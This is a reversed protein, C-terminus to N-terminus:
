RLKEVIVEVGSAHALEVLEANPYDARVWALQSRSGGLLLIRSSGALVARESEEVAVPNWMPLLAKLEGQELDANRQEENPGDPAKPPAAHLPKTTFDKLRVLVTGNRDLLHFTVKQGNVDVNPDFTWTAYGYYLDRLSHVIQVEGVSYPLGLRADMGKAKLLGIATHLSGDMLAPHLWFQDADAKLHEPLALVALSESDNAFIRDVIQFSRGLNLGASSLFPYLEDRTMVQEQCRERIAAIDLREPVGNDVAYGLRGRCHTIAGGSGVTRVAFEVDNGGPALAIETEKAEGGVVLPREWTLNRIVRVPRGAAMEGAVRAMEMYAVGPLTKQTGIVHDVLFFEDGSFRAAFKQETFTSVNRHILPHLRAEAVATGRANTEIDKEALPFWYRERAFPYTPASVRRPVGPEHLLRWDIQAGLTWLEGLKALECADILAQVLSADTSASNLKKGASHRYADAPTGGDLVQQLKRKLDDMDSVALALREPMEDRGVQLTYALDMLAVDNTALYARLSEVYATLRDGNKASVVILQPQAAHAPRQREPAISEELVIHANAGGFGFSSIGARRPLPSGDADVPAPWPTLKDAIFLPTGKLNIYPNLEQLHLNAPIQQHKIALLTKLLGAIGAATELHGVNTKVSSLGIHPTAAPVKGHRRYLESFAKTLAQIEIPDGLPTGTGHCEIFGVTAPDVQGKEYAEILLETQAAPNPATMATVRGGHNEATAKVIAYIHDGDAEAAALSKLFIAGCGEGRVYGNASKDFTKCKGDPSLMGASSFSIYAAPTLMVQVGGVIAMDSSGTHISELARHLAVLSSSCATDLPASPGRLGLLFSVRNALVSHSNGSASYGDLVAGNTNMVDIYDNTAVGVFVGTRTGALESVKHGSDEVAKWVQELFIRQQPDMMQAERPSIGFFLPDFKDIERMFAGKNASTKNAEKLPDGYYDEWRWRDPPILTVLDRSGKLNEWFEQLDESQPMVGSMGVIAVPREIFRLEPANTVAGSAAAPERLAVAPSWAKKNGFTATAALPQPDAPASEPAPASAPGRYVRLLDDKREEVLNKAIEQISPHDFFLVPTIDLQFHDNIANAYTMLGISDFGLDLLIKDAAIDSAELKLLRMVIQSLENEMWQGLVENAQEAVPAAASSIPPTAPAKRRLGWAIELKEQVGEVVVFQSRPSALGRMFADLGVASSLPKMGLTKKMALETQEDPRMGGDAWLSWNISLSKGARAGSARLREREAAFSDMFANAFSYDAQGPNGTVAALSSFLVFFDLTEDKTAEDLLLTGQIKPAFVEAMEQVTKNRIFSDRVLGASHIVGTLDGFQAKTRRLLEDVDERKSVDAAVYLVEAGLKRLDDLRAKQAESLASRGTLVLRAKCTKALFDAFVLGLGGAGGTILYVGGDRLRAVGDAGPLDFVKLKRVSRQGSEYRVAVADQTRARLEALLAEVTEGPADSEQRVHLAKCILKPHETHLTNVFGSIAESLPLAGGPTAHLYLLQARSELKAKILAQCLFLFSFVAQEGTWAFCIDEVTALSELLRTFDGSNQADIEYTRDDIKEFKSGPRVLVVEAATRNQYADRLTEDAGFLVLSRPDHRAADDAAIAAKEWDYAYYLRSFGDADADAKKHVEMLPVGTSERIRVLVKGTEDVILVNSRRVRSDRKGEAETTYSFCKATLPGLIEVEGISYPVLMEGAGDTLRAAMGAQLSGDVLSPHLVLEQLDGRRFEPLVLAALAEKENSHVEALVQFSPGLNLGTSQFLPYADKGNVDKTCRARIAELDVYEPQGDQRDTYLLKGQSHLTKKGELESFVEFQVAEGAPKLEIFVEQPASDRVAIPSVWVINQIRRVPRGAALEGAKRALELYAVGPLTPIDSVLHDYIFFDRDHFTKKFLQREFTSENSDVMPHIGAAAAVAHRAASPQGCWHRKGAFPYTPLPIRRAAGDPPFGQWDTLLGEAWLRAIKRPDRAQSLLRVFEQKESRSLLRTVSEALKVHGVAVDDDKKGDRFRALKELLEEKSHAVIALRQEFSKRGHQLTYAADQLDVDNERLFEALRSAMAALQEENRASLPFILETAPTDGARERPEYSELIVHANAGGAGFSSVGARLPLHVGDVEKAKWEETKPGAVYFPSHEFDIFPNPEASHLSPVLRRHQMQLLVKTISVVGAAAELHGINTKISGIACTQNAVHHGSFAATLGAIEIPDGLETGTGHAEVYGISEAGIKAKALAAQIVSSQAAPNPVFYGSTRGGHNVVASKILGYIHDGDAEAQDLPKLLLAGVGEGAVYGNANKGFTRCVGDPSLAGGGLNIDLKAQHLDLNVGGVIAASCDGAQIAECALYLATLSSSCATDVTLSPGALNMWYSVRNAISWLFSNPSVEHGAHQEDIGIMQYMAWVAGVYVGINRPVGEGALIEPHYGADEIAEWAVELFLREQPDLMEAERPSINFFLSDFKDVDDIFGGRYKAASGYQLRREYRDAPIEEICDVGRELNQWLERVNKAKPYRGAMGVIAIDVARRPTGSVPEQEAVTEAVTVAAPSAVTQANRYRELRYRVDAGGVLKPTSSEFVLEPINTKRAFAEVLREIIADVEEPKLGAPVTLRVLDNISTRRQMGVSHGAARIGTALYLWAVFSPVPDALDSFEPISRVDILVCHGGGSHAVPIGRATLAQGIRRAQEIKRSVRTEIYKRNKLSLAIRKKEIVDLGAGEADLLEQLRHHLAGDNCAIIGGKDVCLEKTLSGIVVDAYSLIERVVAWVTKGAHEKEREILDHANQVVRTADIVLPVSYRGLLAQVDRLHQTSVPHGGAANNGVEICVCAVAAADRELEAELAALDIHAKSPDASYLQFIAPHPLERPTFGNDIQHFLTSPFLLNQPVVGKKPWAKFFVNEAAEGSSTLVFHAFPFVARLADDVSAPQQLQSQLHRMQADIAPMHLQSWSDTKLDFAVQEHAVSLPNFYAQALVSTRDDGDVLVPRAVPPVPEARAIAPAAEVRAVAPAPNVAPAAVAPAEVAPAAVPVPTEQEPTQAQLPDAIMMIIDIVNDASADGAPRCLYISRTEPRFKNKFQLNGADNFINQAHLEDLLRDVAPDATPSAELRCGYTGGLSLMDYGESALKGMIAVMAFELGGLPMDPRYFELDLLYGNLAGSMSTIVIVNQLVDDLYTLFLRHEGDLKGALIDAKVEHVLPNVVTRSECWLDIIEAIQGDTVPNSGCLYEATLSKGMKQFKSVQYRLRRMPGGDLAFTKLDRIRQLVGFPTASFPRDGISAIPDDTLINLQLNGATCYGDIEALLAPLYDEPGTYGYVVILDRSRAYHFYGRRASGIFLNPAIVRTGRSVSGEIKHRAYLEAVLDKLEPHAYANRERIVIPAAAAPATVKQRQERVVVPKPRQVPSRDALLARLTAEHHRTFYRALDHVNFSEFLLSKPLTGFDHELKKLIKLVQFSNIGLEGFAGFSDFDPSLSDAVSSIVPKLYSETLDHLLEQDMM